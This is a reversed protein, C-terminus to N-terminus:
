STGKVGLHCTPCCCAGEVDEPRKGYAQHRGLDEGKEKSAKKRWQGEGRSRPAAGRANGKQSGIYLLKRLPLKKVPLMALGGGAM